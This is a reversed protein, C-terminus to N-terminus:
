LVASIEAGRFLINDAFLDGHIVGKPLHEEAYQSQHELEEDLVHTLHRFHPPLQAKIEQYLEAIREFRFRNELNKRYTQGLLHLTALTQGIKELHSLSLAKEPLSKGALYPYISVMKGEYESVYKGVQDLLPYPSAFRQSRLFLLLELERQVEQPQKVEDIKLFFKGKTTTLFYHTNVSGAPVGSFKALRGLGYAATFGALTKQNLVTYVAM